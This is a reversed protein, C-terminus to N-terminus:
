RWVVLGHGETDCRCKEQDGGAVTVGGSGQVAWELVEGSKRFLFKEQYGAQFGMWANNLCLKALGGCVQGYTSSLRTTFSVSSWVGDSAGEWWCM